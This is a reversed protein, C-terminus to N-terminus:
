KAAELALVQNGVVDFRETTRGDPWAVKVKEARKSSGLGFTLRRGNHSLFSSQSTLTQAQSRGDATVTVVAGMAQGGLRVQLWGNGSGSTNRLLTPAGNMNMILVDVDGDNDFDAFAAGRSSAKETLGVALSVDEFRGEGLNRYLLRPNRYEGKLEPFVHGNVQFVDLWGDNDFDVMATGWGVYQPNVALGARM